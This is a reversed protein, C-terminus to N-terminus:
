DGGGRRIVADMMEIYQDAAASIQNVNNIRNNRQAWPRSAEVLQKARQFLPMAQRAIAPTPVADNAPQLDVASQFVSYGLFFDLQGMQDASVGPLAKAAELMRIAYPWNERGTQMGKTNAEGLLMIAAQDAAFGKAVADRLLPVAEDARNSNLLLSAQRPYLNQFNPDIGEIRKLTALAGDVNGSREQATALRAMLEADQTHVTLFREALQQAQDWEQLQLHATVTNRLYGIDLEAGRAAFAKEFAGAAKRYFDAVQPSVGASNNVAEAQSAKNAAQFAYTGFSILLDVDEDAGGLGEEIFQMAGEPDGAEYIDFAITRRIAADGPNLELYRRYFQRGKDNQNLQTALWGSLQLAEENVPDLEVVKEAAVLSEELRNMKQLIGARLFVTSVANPNLALAQDCNRLADEWSESQAYQGCFTTFQLQKIFNDFGAFIQGAADRQQNRAVTFGPIVFSQNDWLDWVEVDAVRRNEGESAYNVCFAIRASMLQPSGLQRVKSCDMEEMRLQYKRLETQIQGREIIEYGPLDELRSRLENAAREGFGRDQGDSAFFDVVLVRYDDTQAEVAGSPSLVPAALLAAAAM